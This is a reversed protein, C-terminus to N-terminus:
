RVLSCIKHYLFNYKSALLRSVTYHNLDELCHYESRTRCALMKQHYRESQRIFEATEEGGVLIMTEPQQYCDTFIPSVNIESENLSLVQNLYSQRVKTLDFIGSLLIQAGICESDNMVVAHQVIKAVLFAGVSHGCLIFKSADGNWSHINQKLWEFGALNQQIIEGISVGPALDYNMVAVTFGAAVYPRAIYSYQSKDLARFYGGHIFLLVPASPQAAPFIDVTQGNTAGYAHDLHCNMTARAWLSQLQNTVMHVRGFPHRRRLNFEHDYNHM